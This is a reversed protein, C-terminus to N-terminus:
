QLFSGQEGRLIHYVIERMAGPGLIRHDLPNELVRFLRLLADLLDDNMPSAYIAQTAAIKAEPRREEEAMELLLKGVMSVDIELAM